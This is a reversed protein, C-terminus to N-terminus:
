AAKILTGDFWSISGQSNGQPTVASGLTHYMQIEIYDTTGNCYVLGSVHMDQFNANSLWSGRKSGATGDSGNKAILLFGPASGSIQYAANIQYYGAVTPTFRSSAFNSNTDWLETDFILKTFTTSSISGGSSALFASFSPGNGVVNNALKSQTVAGTQLQTTGISNAGLAGNQDIIQTGTNSFFGSSNITAFTVNGVNLSLKNADTRIYDAIITGAM